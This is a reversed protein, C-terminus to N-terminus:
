DTTKTYNLIATIVLNSRSGMNFCLRNNAYNIWFSLYNGNEPYYYTLPVATTGPEQAFGEIKRILINSPITLYGNNSVTGTVTKQYLPKGDIWKGVVQEETSYNFQSQVFGNSIEGNAIDNISDQNLGAPALDTSEDAPNDTISLGTIKLKKEQALATGESDLITHGGGNGKPFTQIINSM